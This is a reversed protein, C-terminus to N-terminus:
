LHFIEKLKDAFDQAIKKEGSDPFLPELSIFVRDEYKRLYVGGQLNPYEQQLQDLQEQLQEEPIQVLNPFYLFTRAHNETRVVGEKYSKKTFLSMMEMYRMTDFNPMLTESLLDSVDNIGEQSASPLIRNKLENLGM